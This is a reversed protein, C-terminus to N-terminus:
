ATEHEGDRANHHRLRYRRAREADSLPERKPKPLLLQVYPKREPWNTRPLDRTKNCVKWMLRYEEARRGRWEGVKMPRVLGAFDLEIFARSATSLSCRLEYAAERAGLSIMGNNNGTYRSGVEILLARAVAGLGHYSASRKVHLPLQFFPPGSAKGKDIIRRAKAGGIGGRDRHPDYHRAM